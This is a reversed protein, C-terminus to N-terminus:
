KVKASLTKSWASTYTVSGVKKYGRMRVYYTKNSTLSKLVRKVTANSTITVTKAKNFNKKLGYQIQYGMGGKGKTWKVTLNKTGASLKLGSVKKPIIKFAKTLTGKYNGKGKITATAPGIKKDTCSVTYDTDAKLTKTGLKVTVAPKAAQGTWTANKVTVTAGKISKKAATGGGWVAYLEVHGSERWTTSNEISTDKILTAEPKKPDTCWGKFTYGERVPVIGGIDVNFKADNNDFGLADCLYYDQGNVKGGQPDFGLSMTDQSASSGPKSFSPYLLIDHFFSLSSDSKGAKVLWDRTNIRLVTKGNTMEYRFNEGESESERLTQSRNPLYGWRWGTEWQYDDHWGWFAYGKMLPNPIEYVHDEGDIYLKIPFPSQTKLWSTKGDSCVLDGTNKEDSKYYRSFTDADLGILYYDEVFWFTPQYLVTGSGQFSVGGSSKGGMGNMKGIQEVKKFEDMKARLMIPLGTDNRYLSVYSYETISGEEIEEIGNRALYPVKFTSTKVETLTTKSPMGTRPLLDFGNFTTEIVPDSLQYITFGFSLIGYKVMGSDSIEMNMPVVAITEGPLIPTLWSNLIDGGEGLLHDATKAEEKKEEYWADFQEKNWSEALLAASVSQGVPTEAAAGDAETWLETDDAEGVVLEVPASVIEEALAAPLALTLVLALLFLLRSKM